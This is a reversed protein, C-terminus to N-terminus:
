ASRRRRRLLGLGILAGGFLVFTSPEPVTTNVEFITNGINSIAGSTFTYTDTVDLSTVNNVNGIVQTITGNGNATASPTPSCVPSCAKTLQAVSTGGIDQMGAAIRNIRWAFNNVNPTGDPNLLPDVSVNYGVTFNSGFGIQGGNIFNISLVTSGQILTSTFQVFTDTPINGPVFNQFIKDGIECGTVGAPGNAATWTSWQAYTFVGSGCQIITASAVSSSLAGLIVVAPLVLVKKM